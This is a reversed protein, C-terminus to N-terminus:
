SHAGTFKSRYESPTMSFEKSFVKTFYGPDSFGTEYAVETVTYDSNRLLDVAKGLRVSRVFKNIPVVPPGEEGPDYSEERDGSCIRLVDELIGDDDEVILDAGAPESYQAATYLCVEETDPTVECMGCLTM